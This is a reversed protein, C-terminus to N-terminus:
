MKHLMVNIIINLDDVDTVGNGDVDGSTGEPAKRLMVNIVINADDIDTVGDGNVDGLVGPAQEPVRSYVTELGKFAVNYAEGSTMTGLDIQISSLRIPYSGMSEAETWQSTPLDIVLDQGAIVTDPVVTATMLKGAGAYLSFVVQKVPANGPNMRLRLTDPLSWLRVSKELLIRPLRGTAGTYDWRFGGDGLQTASGDKGARMTVKWTSAVLSDAMMVHATPCEVTVLMTDTIGDVTGRVVSTGDKLGRLVGGDDIRVVAPDSTTWALAEAALPMAAGDMVSQAEVTYDRLGDTVISHHVLSMNDLEEGIITMPMSVSVEGLTATLLAEGTGTAFFLTDGKIRGFGEPCSLKVGQVDTDVLVGDQNYGFFHPCYTGYRPTNLRFDQFRLEAIVNDTPANSVAFLSNPVARLRGECPNNIEGLQVSYLTSSGGGDLNLAETAGAYRMVDALGDTTIGASLSQRGDVVCMYVKKGGDSYGVATRPHRDTTGDYQGVGGALLIPHGSVVQAPEVAKDGFYVSAELVLEDGEHLQQMWAAASGRGHLVYGKSPILMDCDTNPQSTVILRTTGTAHFSEGDALRATVECGGWANSSGFYISNFITIANNQPSSEVPNIDTVAAQSGNPATMTGAYNVMGIFLQGDAEVGFSPYWDYVPRTLKIDGNCITAGLPTGRMSVGRATKETSVWGFDGNIGVFPQHGESTNHRAMSELTQFLRLEDYALFSEMSVYPNTLDTTTFFVRLNSSGTANHFWLSTQTTGPGVHNYFLTDVTYTMGRIVCTDSAQATTLSLSALAVLMVAYKKM